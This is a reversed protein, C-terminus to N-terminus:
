QSVNFDVDMTNWVYHGKGDNVALSDFRVITHQNTSGPESIGFDYIVPGVVLYLNHPISSDLCHLDVALQSIFRHCWM